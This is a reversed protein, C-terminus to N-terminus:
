TRVLGQKTGAGAAATNGVVGDQEARDAVKAAANFWGPRLPTSYPDVGENGPLDTFRVRVRSVRVAAILVARSPAAPAALAAAFRLPM